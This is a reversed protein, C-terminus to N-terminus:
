KVGVKLNIVSNSECSYTETRSVHVNLVFRQCTLKVQLAEFVDFVANAHKKSQLITVVKNDLDIKVRKETQKEPAASSM